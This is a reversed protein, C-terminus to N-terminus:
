ELSQLYSVVARLDHPSLPQPPMKNGPKVTQSNSVWGSMHGFDNPILGAALRPRSGVHTLDPGVHGDASTGRITHCTACSSTTFVAKGESELSSPAPSSADASMTSLWARYEAPPQAVVRFGMHAHQLGCYEACHGIYIGPKDASLWTRNVRQPILDMKPMLEPVWFSHIVDATRLELQVPTGVPVHIDNATVAGSQQYRVEWWWQHGIVKITTRAPRPPDANSAIDSVSLAFTAAFVLSPIIVGAVLVFNRADGHHVKTARRRVVAALVAMVIVVVCAFTAVGFLLWWSRAVIGAKPGHPSLTSSGTGGCGALMLLLM